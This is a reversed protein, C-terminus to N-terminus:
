HLGVAAALSNLIRDGYKVLDQYTVALVILMLAAFGLNHTWAEVTRGAARRRVAEVALFALRGGDLAPLPLVNIVALNLSLLAAFQIVYRFGLAAVEGTLVAIGVPGSLEQSVTRSVLLERFFGFLSATIQYLFSATTKAAEIPALYWPFSVFGTEFLALGVGPRGADKMMAPTVSFVLPLNEEGRTVAFTVPVGARASTYAVVERAATFNNDDVSVVTDGPRLGSAAAPSGPMVDYVHLEANTVERFRSEGEIIQPLGVLYGVSLLFWALVINMMVGASLIVARKWIPKAAFSDPDDVDEGSEGKIRVFGGLPIWNISYLVGGRKVGWARPPFGFGFEEVKVGSKIAAFFHGAEHVFVLVSLLAVFIVITALM